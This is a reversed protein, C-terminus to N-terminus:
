KAAYERDLAEIHRRIYRSAFFGAFPVFASAALLAIQRRPWVGAGVTQLLVWGYFIFALGHLPGMARVAGPWDWLHKLPVAVCLLLALTSAEIVSALKLQGLLAINIKIEKKM